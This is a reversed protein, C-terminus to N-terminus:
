TSLTAVPVIKKGKRVQLKFAGNGFLNKIRREYSAGRQCTQTATGVHFRMTQFYDETHQRTM